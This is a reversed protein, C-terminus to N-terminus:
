RCKFDRLDASIVDIGSKAEQPLDELFGWDNRSNYRVFARVKAAYKLLAETLHSGIFGGAGTVLVKKNNLYDFTMISFNYANVPCRMQKTTSCKFYLLVDARGVGQM